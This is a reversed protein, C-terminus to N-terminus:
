EAGNEIADNIGTESLCQDVDRTDLVGDPGVFQSPTILGREDTSTEITWGKKKLCGSLAKFAENRVEIEEPTLEARATATERLAELIKSRAACTEILKRYNPDQYAPNNPDQLDGRITEGADEICTRFKAFAEFLKLEAPRDDQNLPITDGTEDSADDPATTAGPSSDPVTTVSPEYAPITARMAAVDTPSMVQVEDVGRVAIQGSAASGCATLSIGIAVVRGVALLPRVAM